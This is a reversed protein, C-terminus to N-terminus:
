TELPKGYMKYFHPKEKIKANLRERIVARDEDNPSWDQFYRDPFQDLKFERTEDINFNRKRLEARLEEYRLALYMGKNYFFKVHGKNLTFKTPIGFVGNASKLSRQLASGVMFIERYEAMLHQDVLESPDIINIRTM